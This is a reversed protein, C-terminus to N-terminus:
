SVISRQGPSQPARSSRHAVNMRERSSAVPTEPSMGSFAVKGAGARGAIRIGAEAGLGVGGLGVGFGVGFGVGLGEGFGLGGAGFTLFCSIEGRKRPGVM